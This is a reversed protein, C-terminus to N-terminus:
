WKALVLMWSETLTQSRHGGPPKTQALTLFTPLWTAATMLPHHVTVGCLGVERVWFDWRSPLCLHRIFCLPFSSCYPWKTGAPYFINGLQVTQTGKGEEMRGPWLLFRVPCMIWMDAGEQINRRIVNLCGQCTASGLFVSSTWILGYYSVDTQCRAAHDHHAREPQLKAWIVETSSHSM